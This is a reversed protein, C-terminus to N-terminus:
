DWDSVSFFHAEAEREFKLCDDREILARGYAAWVKADYRDLAELRECMLQGAMAASIRREAALERKLDDIRVKDARMLEIMENAIATVYTTGALGNVQGAAQQLRRIFDHDGIERNIRDAQTSSFPNDPSQSVAFPNAM